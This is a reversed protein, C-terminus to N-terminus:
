SAIPTLTNRNQKLFVGVASASAGFSIFV